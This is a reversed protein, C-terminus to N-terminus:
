KKIFSFRQLTLYNLKKPDVPFPLNFFNNLLLFRRVPISSKEFKQLSEDNAITIFDGVLKIVGITLIIKYIRFQCM